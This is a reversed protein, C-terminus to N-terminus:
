MESLFASLLLAACYAFCVLCLRWLFVADRKANPPSPCAPPMPSLGSAAMRRNRWETLYHALAQAQRASEISDLVLVEVGNDLLLGVACSSTWSYARVSERYTVRSVNHWLVERGPLCPLPRFVWSIRDQQIKANTRNLGLILLGYILLGIIPLGAADDLDVVMLTAMMAALAVSFCVLLIATDRAAFPASIVVEDADARVVVRSLSTSPQPAPPQATTM